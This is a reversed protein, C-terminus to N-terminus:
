WSAPASRSMIWFWRSCTMAVMAMSGGAINSDVATRSSRALAGASWGGNELRHPRRVRRDGALVARGFDAAARGPKRWSCPTEGSARVSVYAAPLATEDLVPAPGAHRKVNAGALAQGLADGVDGDLELGRRQAQELVALGAAPRVQQHQRMGARSPMESRNKEFRGPEPMVSRGTVM